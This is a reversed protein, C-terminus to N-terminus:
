RCRAAARQVLEALKVSKGEHLRSEEAAFAILHSQLSATASTLAAGSGDGRERVQRLFDAVMRDDGGGHGDGAVGCHFM